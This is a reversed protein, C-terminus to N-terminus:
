WRGCARDSSHLYSCFLRSNIYAWLHSMDGTVPATQVSREWKLWAHIWGWGGEGTREPWCDDDGCCSKLTLHIHVTQCCWKDFRCCEHCNPVQCFSLPMNNWSADGTHTSFGGGTVAGFTWRHTHTHTSPLLFPSFFFVWCHSDTWFHQRILNDRHRKVALGGGEREM